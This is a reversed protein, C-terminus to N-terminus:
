VGPRGEREVTVRLVRGAEEVKTVVHTSEVAKGQGRQEYVQKEGVVTPAYLRDAPKDKLAQAAVAVAVFLLSAGM